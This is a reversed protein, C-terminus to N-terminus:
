LHELVAGAARLGEKHAGSVTVTEGKNMAEGAFHIVEAHPHKLHERMGAGGPRTGSYSGRTHENSAWQTAHGKRFGKMIDSGFVDRMRELAFAIAADQGSAELEKAFNGVHEFVCLGTGSINCLMEGARAMSGSLATIPYCVLTDPGVPLTGDAFQLACHNYTGMTIVDLAAMRTAELPPDFRIAEAALVGVSVTVIVHAATLKGQPTEVEAGQPTRAIARVPTNLKVPLGDAHRAVIAGFGERCYWNDRELGATVWEHMSIEDLDRGASLVRLFLCTRELDNRATFAETMAMDSEAQTKENLKAEVENYVATVEDITNDGDFVVDDSAEYVDFGLSRGILIFANLEGYHLWHGGIDFPVGFISTDTHCRGGIRNASELCIVSRGAYHLRRTAALGAAGAGVIVADFDTAANPM